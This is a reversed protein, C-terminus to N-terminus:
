GAFMPEDLLDGPGRHQEQAREGTTRFEASQRAMEQLTRSIGEAKPSKTGAALCVHLELIMWVSVNYSFPLDKPPCLCLIHCQVEGNMVGNCDPFVARM